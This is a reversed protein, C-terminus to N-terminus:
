RLTAPQSHNEPKASGVPYEEEKFRPLPIAIPFSLM